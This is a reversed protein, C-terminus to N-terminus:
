GNDDRWLETTACRLAGQWFSVDDCPVEIVQVGKKDLAKVVRSSGAPLCVKNPGLVLGNAQFQENAEYLTLPVIDWDMVPSPPLGDVFAPLYALAVGERIPLFCYDGHEWEHEHSLYAPWVRYGQPELIDCLWRFGSPSTALYSMTVLVDRDGCPFIDGGEVFCRPDHQWDINRSWDEVAPPAHITIHTFRKKLGMLFPALAILEKHRHPARPQNVIVNNGIVTIQERAWTAGLGVPDAMGIELPTLSPRFVEVGESVLLDAFGDLQRVCGAFRLPDYAAKTQGATSPGAVENGLRDQWDPYWPPLVDHDPIGLLVARLTIFPNEVGVFGPSTLGNATQGSFSVPLPDMELSLSAEMGRSEIWHLWAAYDPDRPGIERLSDGVIGQGDEARLPVLLNGNDLQRIM